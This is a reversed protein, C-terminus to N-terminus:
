QPEWGPAAMEFHDFDFAPSVTCGVLTFDGESEAAQWAMPPVEIQPRQGAMIDPGLQLEQRGSDTAISLKLPSGAYFHWLEASDIRHWRSREGRRLLFYIATGSGRGGAEPQHRWPEAFHGGEPHPQLDLTKIIDDAEAM